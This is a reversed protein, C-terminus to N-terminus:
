DHVFCCSEDDLRPLEPVRVEATVEGQGRRAAGNASEHLLQFILDDANDEEM